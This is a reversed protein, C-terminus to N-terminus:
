LSYLGGHPKNIRPVGKTPGRKLLEEAVIEHDNWLALEFATWGNGDVVHVDTQSESLLLRVITLKGNRATTHLSSCLHLDEDLHESKWEVLAFAVVNYGKATAWSLLSAIEEASSSRHAGNFGKLLFNSASTKATLRIRAALSCNVGSSDSGLGPNVEDSGLGDQLLREILDRCNNKVAFLLNFSWLM